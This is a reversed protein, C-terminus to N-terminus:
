RSIALHRLILCILHDHYNACNGHRRDKSSHRPGGGCKEASGDGCGLDLFIQEVNVPSRLFFEKEEVLPYLFEANLEPIVFIFLPRLLWALARVAPATDGM